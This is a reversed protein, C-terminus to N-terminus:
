HGTRMEQGIYQRTQTMKLLLVDSSSGDLFIGAAWLDPKIQSVAGNEMTAFRLGFNKQVAGVDYLPSGKVM